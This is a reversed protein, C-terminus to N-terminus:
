SETGEAYASEKKSLCIRGSIVRIREDNRAREGDCRVSGHGWFDILGM